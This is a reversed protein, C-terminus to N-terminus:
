TEDKRGAARRSKLATWRDCMEDLVASPFGVTVEMSLEGDIYRDVSLYLRGSDDGAEEYLHWCFGAMGGSAITCRTSM